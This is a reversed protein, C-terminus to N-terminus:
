QIKDLASKARCPLLWIREVEKFFDPNKLWCLAFKFQIFPLEINKSVTILLPNHDTVERPLRNVVVQPFLDEWDQSVLVRDLKVM